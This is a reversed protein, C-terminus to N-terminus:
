QDLPMTFRLDASSALGPDAAGRGSVGIGRAGETPGAGLPRLRPTQLPWSRGPPWLILGADDQSAIGM